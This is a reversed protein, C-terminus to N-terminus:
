KRQDRILKDRFFSIEDEKLNLLINKLSCMFFCGFNFGVTIWIFFSQDKLYYILSIQFLTLILWILTEFFRILKWNIREM